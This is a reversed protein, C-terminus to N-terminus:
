NKEIKDWEISITSSEIVIPELVPKPEPQKIFPGACACFFTLTFLLSM